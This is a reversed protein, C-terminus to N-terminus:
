EGKLKITKVEHLRNLDEYFSIHVPVESRGLKNRLLYISATVSNIDDRNTVGCVYIFVVIGLDAEAM